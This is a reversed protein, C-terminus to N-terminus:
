GCATTSRVTGTGKLSASIRSPIKLFCSPLIAPIIMSGAIIFM